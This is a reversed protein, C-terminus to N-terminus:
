DLSIGTIDIGYDPLQELSVTGDSVIHVLCNWADIGESVKDFSRIYEEEQSYMQSLIKEGNKRKTYQIMDKQISELINDSEVYFTRANDMIRNNIAIFTQPLGVKKSNKIMASRFDPFAKKYQEALNNIDTKTYKDYSSYRAMIMENMQTLNNIITQMRSEEKRFFDLREMPTRLNRLVKLFHPSYHSM